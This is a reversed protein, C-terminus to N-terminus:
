AFNVFNLVMTAGIRSWNVLIEFNQIESTQFERNQSDHILWFNAFRIKSSIQGHLAFKPARKYACVWRGAVRVRKVSQSKEEFEGQTSAFELFDCAALRVTASAVKGRFWRTYLKRLFRIERIWFKFESSNLSLNEFHARTPANRGRFRPRTPGSKLAFNRWM